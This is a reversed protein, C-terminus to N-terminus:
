LHSVEDKITNGELKGVNECRWQQSFSSKSTYLDIIRLSLLAFSCSRPRILVLLTLASIQVSDYLNSWRIFHVIYQKVVNTSLAKVLYLRGVPGHQVLRTSQGNQGCFHSGLIKCAVLKGREM